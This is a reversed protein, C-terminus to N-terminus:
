WVALAARRIETSSVAVYIYSTDRVITGTPWNYFTNNSNAPTFTSRIRIRDSNVDLGNVVPAATNSTIVVANGTLLFNGTSRLDMKTVVTQATEGFLDGIELKRNVPTTSPDRVILLLDTNAAGTVADLQTIKKDAM